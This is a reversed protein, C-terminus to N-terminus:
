DLYIKELRKTIKEIDFSEIVNTNDIENRNQRILQSIKESWIETDASLPLYELNSNLKASKTVTDSVVCPLKSAQAEILTLPFGEHLSPFVFCDMAMLLREVDNRLGAFIVKDEIGLKSVKNELKGRDYGDGIMLLVSDQVKKQFDYFIDIVFEQNKIYYMKGIHGLVTKNQINFEQKVDKRVSLDFNYKTTDIGNNLIVGRKKFAYKGYLFNGTEESCAILDTAYRNLIIRMVARYIMAFFRKLRSRGETLPHSFHSHAVRKKIGSKYAAMLVIGSFFLLHSHVIDFHEKEFLEKYFGYSKYYSLKNSPQHIVRAGNEIVYSELPGIEEDHRACYTCEFKDKDLTQQLRIAVMDSGGHKLPDTVILVKKKNQM